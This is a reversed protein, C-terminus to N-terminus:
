FPPLLTGDEQVSFVRKSFYQKVV